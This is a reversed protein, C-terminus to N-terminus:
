VNSLQVLNFNEKTLSQFKENAVFDISYYNQTGSQLQM